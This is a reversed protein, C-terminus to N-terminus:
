LWSFKSLSYVCSRCIFALYEFQILQAPVVRYTLQLIRRVVLFTQGIGPWFVGGSIVDHRWLTIKGRKRWSFRFLKLTEPKPNWCKMIRTLVPWPLGRVEFAECCFTDTQGSPHTCWDTKLGIEKATPSEALGAVTVIDFTKQGNSAPLTPTKRGTHHLFWSVGTRSLIQLFNCPTGPIQLERRPVVSQTSEREDTQDKAEPIRGAESPNLIARGGSWNWWCDKCPWHSRLPPAPPWDETTKESWNCRHQALCFWLWHFRYCKCCNETCILQTLIVLHKMKKECLQWHFVSPLLYSKFFYYCCRELDTCSLLM